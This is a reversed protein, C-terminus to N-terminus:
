LIHDADLYSNCRPVFHGPSAATLEGEGFLLHWKSIHAWKELSGLIWIKRHSGWDKLTPLYLNDSEAQALCFLIKLGRGTGAELEILIIEKAGRRWGGSSYTYKVNRDGRGSADM